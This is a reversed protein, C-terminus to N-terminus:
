VTTIFLANPDRLVPLAVGEATTVIAAPRITEEVWAVIGPADSRALRGNGTLMTASATTGFFTNGLGNLRLGVVTREPILREAAGTTPHVTMGDFLVIPARVGAVQLVAAVTDPGLLGPVIQSTGAALNKVQTNLSLEGMRATAMLWLDPDRGGNNSRFTAEWAIFNTIPVANTTDSWAVGASTTHDNPVGPDYVLSKLGNENITITGISLLEARAREVRIQTAMACQLADDWLSDFAAVAGADRAGQRYNQVGQFRLRTIQRETLDLSLGLPAIEVEVATFGQRRGFPPATDWPRYSAVNYIPAEMRQLETVIDDVELNPLFRELTPPELVATERVYGVLRPIDLVNEELLIGM